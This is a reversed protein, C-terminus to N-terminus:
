WYSNKRRKGKTAAIKGTRYVGAQRPNVQKLEEPYFSDTSSEDKYDKFRYLPLLSPPSYETLLKMWQSFTM